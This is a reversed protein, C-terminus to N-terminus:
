TLERKISECLIYADEINHRIGNNMFKENDPDKIQQWTSPTRINVAKLCSLCETDINYKNFNVTLLDKDYEYDKYSKFYLTDGEDKFSQIYRALARLFDEYTRDSYNCFKTKDSYDYPQSEPNHYSNVTGWITGDPRIVNRRHDKDPLKKFYTRSYNLNSCFTVCWITTNPDFHNGEPFISQNIDRHVGDGNVILLQM